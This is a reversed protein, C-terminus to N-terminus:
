RGRYMKLWGHRRAGRFTGPPVIADLDTPLTDVIARLLPLTCPVPGLERPGADEFVMAYIPDAELREIRM